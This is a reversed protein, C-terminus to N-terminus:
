IVSYSYIVGFIFWVDLCLIIALLGAWISGSTERWMSQFVAFLRIIGASVMVAGSTFMFWGAHNFYGDLLVGVALTIFLIPQFITSFYSVRQAGLVCELRKKSFFSFIKLIVAFWLALMLNLTALICVGVVLAFLLALVFGGLELEGRRVAPFTFKELCPVNFLM